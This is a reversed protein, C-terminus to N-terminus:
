RYVGYERATRFMTVANEPPVGAQVNHIPAFVFGGGEALDDINRKVEDAVDQPTGFPLTSQSDCGAGWFALDKGFEKKLTQADMGAASVQIPNLVDVGIEILDPILPAIAGDSHFLVPADCRSKAFEFLKKMYPKLMTRFTKPSMLPRDQMGLDEEFLMVDLYKGVTAAFHEFRELNAQLLRDMM